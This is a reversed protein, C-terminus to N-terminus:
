LKKIEQFYFDERQEMDGTSRIFTEQKKKLNPLYNRSNLTVPQAPGNTEQLNEQDNRYFHVNKSEKITLVHSNFLSPNEELQLSDEKPLEGSPNKSGLPICNHQELNSCEM